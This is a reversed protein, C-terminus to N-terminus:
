VQTLDVTISGFTGANVANMNRTNINNFDAQGTDSLNFGANGGQTFNGSRIRRNNGDIEINAAASGVILRCIVNFTNATGMNLFLTRIFAAGFVGDLANATIDSVAQQYLHRHLEISLMNWRNGSWQMLRNQQWIGTTNGTFMVFNGPHM